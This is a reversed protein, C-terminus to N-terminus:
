AMTTLVLFLDVLREFGFSHIRVEGVDLMVIFPAHAM